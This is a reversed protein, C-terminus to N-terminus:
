SSPCTNKGGVVTNGGQTVNSSGSCLLNGGITNGASCVGTTGKTGIQITASSSQVSVGGTIHTSCITNPGTGALNQPLGQINVNGAIQSMPGINFSGLPSINVNGASVASDALSLSGSILNINGDVTCNTISASGGHITVSGLFECNQYTCTQGVVSLTVNGPITGTIPGGKTPANSCASSTQGGEFQPKADSPGTADLNFLLQTFTSDPTGPLSVPVAFSDFCLAGGAFAGTCAPNPVPVTFTANAAGHAFPITASQSQGESVFYANGTVTGLPLSLAFVAPPGCCEGYVVDFPFTGSPGTYAYVAPSNERGSQPGTAGPLGGIVLTNGIKLSLGDDNAVNFTQGNTVTVTGTFEFITGGAGADLNRALDTPTGSVGMANGTALFSGLTYSTSPNTTLSALLLNTPEPKIIQPAVHPDPHWSSAILPLSVASCHRGFNSTTVFGDSFVYTIKAKCLDDNSIPKGSSLVSKAFSISDQAALGPHRFKVVLCEVTGSACPNPGATGINPNDPNDDAGPQYAINRMLPDNGFDPYYKVDQVLNERSKALTHIGDRRAFTQGQPLSLVWAVLTEGSQGGTPGSLDFIVQDTSSGATALQAKTTEYPVANILGSMQVLPTIVPPSNPFLLGSSGGLVQQQQTMPLQPSTAAPYGIHTTGSQDKYSFFSPDNPPAPPYPVLPLPTVQDATGTYLGPSQTTLGNAPSLCAAPPIVPPNATLDQLPALVCTVTPATRSSGTTMLNAGCAPYNSDCQQFQPNNLIPPAVGFPATYSNMTVNTVPVWPGAGYTDHDLGLSHLIEHAITDPRAGQSGFFTNGGIAVGNNGIWSLGYLTGGPPTPPNITGVFFLNMVSADTNRPSVPSGCTNAVGNITSNPPITMNKIPCPNTGPAQQSLTQFDSSVLSTFSATITIQKNSASGGATQSPNVTYTGAGGTGTIMGTIVTGATVGTGSLGDTVALTAPLGSTGTVSCSSAITLTYGAIYGKCTAFNTTPNTVHLQTFDTNTPSVYGTMPLWVLEVGISNLLERTIDVGSSTAPIPTGSAPDVTFGIPQQSTPNNPLPGFNSNAAFPMGAKPWFAVTSSTTNFPSCGLGGNIPDAGNQCVDIPQVKVYCPVDGDGPSVGSLSPTCTAFATGSAFCLAVALLLSRIVWSMRQKMDGM